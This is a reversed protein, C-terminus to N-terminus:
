KKVIVFNIQAKKNFNKIIQNKIGQEKFKINKKKKKINKNFINIFKYDNM